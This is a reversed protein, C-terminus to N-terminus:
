ISIVLGLRSSVEPAPDQQLTLSEAEFANICEKLIHLMFKVSFGIAPPTIYICTAYTPQRSSKESNDNFSHSGNGPRGEHIYSSRMEKYAIAGYRSLALWKELKKKDEEKILTCSKVAETIIKDMRQDDSIQRIHWNAPEWEQIIQREGIKGFFVCMDEPLKQNTKKDFVVDGRDIRSWLDPLSIIQFLEGGYHALFADFVLRCGKNKCKERGINQSWFSSLADLSAWLLVNAEHKNNILDLDHIFLHRQRWYDFFNTIRGKLYKNM